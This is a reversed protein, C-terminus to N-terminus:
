WPQILVIKLMRKIEQILCPQTQLIVRNHWKKARFEENEQGRRHGFKSRAKLKWQKEELTSEEIFSGVFNLVLVIYFKYFTILFAYFSLDLIIKDGLVNKM